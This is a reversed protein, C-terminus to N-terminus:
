IKYLYWELKQPIYHLEYIRLINHITSQCRYTLVVEGVRKIKDSFQLTDVTIKVENDGEYFKFKYPRINGNKYFIAIMDVRKNIVKM